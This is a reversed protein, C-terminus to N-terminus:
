GMRELQEPAAAGVSLDALTVGTLPLVEVTAGPAVGEGDPVLALGQAALTSALLHSAHGGARRAELVGDEALRLAVHLLHLKGDPHRGLGEPARAGLSSPAGVELGGLRALAPRVFLEFAVAASVPNGPLGALLAGGHLVGFALPKAPKIAVAMEIGGGRCCREIVAKVLDRDGVSVGGSTVVLDVRGGADARADVLADEDDPLVGLDVTEAGAAACLGLLLHRNADRIQGPRLPAPAETLESGTSLVGVVPPRRVTLEAVGVSAAVACHRPALRTGARLVLAGARVDDGAGRVHAGPAPSQLLLVREGNEAPESEELMCVANAGPPLPAGTMIRVAEGPRIPAGPEDGALIRGVVALDLPAPAGTAVLAYGDMASCTFPPVSDVAAVDRALVAGLADAVRVTSVPLPAVLGLVAARAEELPVLPREPAGRTM